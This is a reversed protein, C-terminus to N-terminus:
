TALASDRQGAAQREAELGTPYGARKGSDAGGRGRADQDGVLDAVPGVLPERDRHDVLAGLFQRVEAIVRRDSGQSPHRWNSMRKVSRNSREAARAGVLRNAGNIGRGHHRDCGFRGDAVFAFRSAGVDCDQRTSVRWGNPLIEIWVRLRGTPALSDRLWRAIPMASFRSVEPDDMNSSTTAQLSCRNM